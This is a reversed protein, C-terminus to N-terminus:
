EGLMEFLEVIALQMDTIQEEITPEVIEEQFDKTSIAVWVEKGDAVISNFETYNDYTEFVENDEYIQLPKQINMVDNELQSENKNTLVCFQLLGNSSECISNCLTYINDNIKIQM